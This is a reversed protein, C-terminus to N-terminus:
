KDKEIKSLRDQLSQVIEQQEQSAKILVATLKSYNIGVVNGDNDREVLEPYIAEISEAILGIDEKKSDKWTFRSPTIKNLTNLQPEIPRVNEKKSITSTEVLSQVTTKGSVTLTGYIVADGYYPFASGTGGSGTVIQSIASTSGTFYTPASVASIGLANNNIDFFDAKYLVSDNLKTLNPIILTVEDPSFAFEQAVKLSVNAFEWFGNNPIIRVGVSGSLPVYFNFTQNKFYAVDNVTSLTGIKQGLPNTTKIATGTLYVDASYQSATYAAAGSTTYVYADLALTYESTPFVSFNNKTGIFYNSATTIAYVSDLIHLDTKNLTFDYSSNITYDYYSPDPIASGTVLYSYWNSQAIDISNFTGIPVERQNIVVSSSILIEGVTTQTDALASFDLQSGASKNATKVRFIEGTVTDLNIIRLKALSLSQSTNTTVSQSIYHYNVSSTVVMINQIYQTNSASYASSTIAYSGTLLSPINIIQKTVSSTINTDAFARSVNFLRVPLNVSATDSTVVQYSSTTFPIDTTYQRTEILLSGTITPSTQYSAFPTTSFNQINYGVQRQNKNVPTLIYNPAVDFVSQSLTSGTILLEQVLVQPQLKVRLPTQNNRKPEIVIKKQWRVNPQSTQVDTLTTNDSARIRATGVVSLLATGPPTDQYIEIAVLRSNAEVIGRIAETYISNGNVDLLEVLVQTGPKLFSTGTILFGNRGGTLVGSLQKINFYTSEVGTDEILVPLNSLNQKSLTKHTRPM